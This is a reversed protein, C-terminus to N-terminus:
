LGVKYRMFQKYAFNTLLARSGEQTTGGEVFYHIAHEQLTINGSYPRSSCIGLQSNGPAVSGNSMGAEYVLMGDFYVFMRNAGKSYAYLYHHWNTDAVAFNTPYWSILENILVINNGPTDTTTTGFGIGWQKGDFYSIAWCGSTNTSARKVLTSYIIMGRAGYVGSNLGITYLAEQRPATTNTFLIGAGTGDFLPTTQNFTPTAGFTGHAANTSSDTLQTANPDNLRFYRHPADGLIINSYSTTPPSPNAIWKLGSPTSTDVSLLQGNAGIPLIIATDNASAVALDGKANWIGDTAIGGPTGNASIVLQNGADNYTVSTGTGATILNAVRDDVAESFDTIQTSTHTHSAPAFSPSDASTLIKASPITTFGPLNPIDIYCGKSGPGSFIRIVNQYLDIVVDGPLTSSTHREFIFQGGEIANVPDKEVLLAPARLLSNLDITDVTLTNTTKNYTFAAEGGFAGGDNYQVWTDSGGPTGGGGGGPPVKWTGDASLYKTGDGGSPPVMGRTGSTFLPLDTQNIFGYDWWTNSVKYLLQGTSGGGGWLQRWGYDGDNDSLKALVMQYVGGAPVGAKRWETDFNTGSKKVLVHDIDGGTPVGPGKINMALVWSGAVKQYLDGTLEDLYYNGNEGLLVSPVGPGRFWQGGMAIMAYHFASYRGPYNVPDPEVYMAAQAWARALEMAAQALAAYQQGATVEASGGLGRDFGGRLTSM